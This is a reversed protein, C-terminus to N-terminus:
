KYCITARNRKKNPKRDLQRCYYCCFFSDIKRGRVWDNITQHVVKILLDNEKRVQIKKSM